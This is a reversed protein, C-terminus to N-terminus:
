FCTIWVDVVVLLVARSSVSTNIRFLNQLIFWFFSFARRTVVLDMRYLSGKQYHKVERVGGHGLLFLFPCSRSVM